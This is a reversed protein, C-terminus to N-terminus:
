LSRPFNTGGEFMYINVHGETLLDDLDKLHEELDGTHHEGGWYDFWGVWFEM